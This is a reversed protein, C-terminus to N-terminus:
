FSGWVWGRTMWAMRAYKLKPSVEWQPKSRKTQATTFPCYDALPEETVGCDVTDMKHLLTGLCQDHSVGMPPPICALALNDPM